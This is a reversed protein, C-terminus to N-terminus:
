QAIEADVALLRLMGRADTLSPEPRVEALDHRRDHAGLAARLDSTLREEESVARRVAGRDARAAESLEPQEGVVDARGEAWKPVMSQDGKAPLTGKAGAGARPDNGDHSGHFDSDGDEERRV